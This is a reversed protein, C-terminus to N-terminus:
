SCHQVNGRRTWVPLGRQRFCEGDNRPYSILVCAIRANGLVLWGIFVAAVGRISLTWWEDLTSAEWMPYVVAGSIINNGYILSGSVPERIGDDRTRYHWGGIRNPKM